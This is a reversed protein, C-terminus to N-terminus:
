FPINDSKLIRIVMKKDEDRSVRILKIRGTDNIFSESDDVIKGMEVLLDEIVKFYIVGKNSADVPFETNFIFIELKIPYDRVQLTKLPNFHSRLLDKLKATKQARAQRSVAGNWIPQFNVIWYRPKGATRANALLPKKTVKDVLIGNVFENKGNHLYTKPIKVKGKKGSDKHVYYVPRRANAILIKDPYDKIQIETIVRRNDM